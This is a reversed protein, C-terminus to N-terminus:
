QIVNPQVAIEYQQKRVQGDAFYAQCELIAVGCENASILATAVSDDFDQESVSIGSTAVWSCGDVATDLEGEAGSWDVALTIQSGRITTVKQLRPVYVTPYVTQM